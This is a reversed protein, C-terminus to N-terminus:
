MVVVRPGLTGQRVPPPGAVKEKASQRADDDGQASGQLAIGAARQGARSRSEEEVLGLGEFIQRM